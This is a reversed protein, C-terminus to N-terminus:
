YSLVTTDDLVSLVTDDLIWVQDLSAPSTFFTFEILKHGIRETYGEVCVTDTAAPAQSPLNTIAIVSSIDVALLARCATVGLTFAEVPLTKLRPPPDAYRLLYWWAAEQLAADSTKLLNLSTSKRGYAAISAADTKTISAGGPRSARVENTVLQDDDAYGLQQELDAADLTVMAPQSYRIDRGQLMLGGDRRAFLQASDTAEVEQMLVLPSKHGPGQSAITGFLTGTVQVDANAVGSYAALRKVRVDATEGAFGNAGANYHRQVWATTVLNSTDLYLAVHSISGQFLAANTLSGVALWRMRSVYSYTGGSFLVGDIWVNGSQENYVIHHVADNALSVANVVQSSSGVPSVIAVVLYGSANLSINLQYLSDASFMQVIGRNATTTSFWAEVTVYQISSGQEYETSLDSTLYLGNSSDVPTFLPCSLGDAGPGTGQGFAIVGGSGAQTPLLSGASSSADNGASVSDSPEDLPFYARPQDFLVEEELLSKLEVQGLRKFIDTCTVTSISLKGGNPWEIPWKNVYGDYRPSLLVATSSFALVTAGSNVQVEDMWLTHGNSPASSPTLQLVHRAATATFSYTLQQWSGTGSSATGTAIGSVGLRVAGAGANVWVWASATYTQGKELGYLTTSVTAPLTGDWVIKLSKTGQHARTGDTTLAAGTASWTPASAGELTPDQVYNTGVHVLRVRLRKGKRVNPYYPSSANTPSFRGDYNRFKLTCMSPQNNAAVEDQKGRGTIEIGHEVYDTVDTWVPSTSLPDTAFAIEVIPALHM